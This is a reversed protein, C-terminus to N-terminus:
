GRMAEIAHALRELFEGAASLTVWLGLAAPIWQGIDIAMKILLFGVALRLLLLLLKMAEKGRYWSLPRAELVSLLVFFCSDVM